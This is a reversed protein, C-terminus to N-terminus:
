KVPRGIIGRGTNRYLSERLVRNAELQATFSTMRRQLGEPFENRNVLTRDEYCLAIKDTCTLAM